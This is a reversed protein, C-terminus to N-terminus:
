AKRRRRLVALGGLALLSMTGPEPLDDDPHLLGAEGSIAGYALNLNPYDELPDYGVPFMEAGPNPLMFKFFTVGRTLNAFEPFSTVMDEPNVGLIQTVKGYGEILDAVDNEARALLSTASFEIELLTTDTGGVPYLPTPALGQTGIWGTIRLFGRSGTLSVDFTDGGPNTYPGDAADFEMTLELKAGFQPNSPPLLNAFLPYLNPSIAPGGPVQPLATGPAYRYSAVNHLGAAAEYDGAVGPITLRLIDAGKGAYDYVAARFDGSPDQLYPVDFLFDHDAITVSLPAALGASAFVALVSLAVTATTGKSM